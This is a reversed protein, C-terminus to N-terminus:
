QFSHVEVTTTSAVVMRVKFGRSKTFITSPEREARSVPLLWILFSLVKWLELIFALFISFAKLQKLFEKLIECCNSVNSNRTVSQSGDNGEWNYMMNTIM